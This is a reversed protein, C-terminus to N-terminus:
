WRPVQCCAPRPNHIIVQSFNWGFIKMCAFFKTSTHLVSGAKFIENQVLLLAFSILRM